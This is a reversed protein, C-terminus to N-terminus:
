GMLAHGTRLQFASVPCLEEAFAARLHEGTLRLPDTHWSGPPEVIQQLLSLWRNLHGRLRGLLHYVTELAFSPRLADVAANVHRVELLQVLLQWLWHATFTHRPLVEAFFM